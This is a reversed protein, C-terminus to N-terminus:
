SVGEVFSERWGACCDSTQSIASVGFTFLHISSLRVLFFPNSALFLIPPIRQPQLPNLLFHPPPCSPVTHGIVVKQLLHFPLPIMKKLTEHEYTKAHRKERMMILLFVEYLYTDLEM